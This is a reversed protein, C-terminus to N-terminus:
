SKRQWTTGNPGDLLEIGDSLLDNRIKDALEFDNSKKALNRETILTKQEETIDSASEAIKLGLAKDVYQFFEIYSQRSANALGNAGISAVASVVSLAAPTNLDNQLAEMFKGQLSVIEATQDKPEDTAVFVKEYAHRLNALSNAAHQLIDWTFNTETRYHGQLVLYRFDLATFKHAKIDALTFFNEKSKSMKAGDVKMFEAHLWLKAFPQGNATESQAIENTHHVPIHDVGGAHIDITDGLYEKAMASCEIHWGPFGLGWPSEWEMDRKEGKPSFKWLAFDEPNRKQDNKNIRAFKEDAKVGGALKGYDPLQATDFYIGDELKYSFGREEIAQIMEIQQNIHDTAKPLKNPTLLNLESMEKIFQATYYEAVEWASNRQSQATKSMKDDGTDGDSVLHGVDTINLVHTVDAGSLKLVRVLTDYFIFTRWNGIHPDLYVTPGCTYLTLRKDTSVKQKSKTLTDYLAIM